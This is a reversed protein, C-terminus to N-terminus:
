KWPLVGSRGAWRDYKDSLEKVKEAHKGALDNLETRDGELDYLEWNGKHQAVLKWKGQRVARNGEHEWYIESHGERTKGEFIPRLSKGELPTIDRGQCTKPYEVGAVDLCTAM